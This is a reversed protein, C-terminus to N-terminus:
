IKIFYKEQSKLNHNKEAFVFLRKIQKKGLKTHPIMGKIIRYVLECPYDKLMIKMKRERLGSPYGSHNYYIKKNLKKGTTKMKKANIIVVYDGLDSNFIFNNKNKGMLIKAIKNSERGIIKDKLDFFFWKRCYPKKLSLITTNQYNKDKYKEQTYNKNLM